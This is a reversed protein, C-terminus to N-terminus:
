RKAKPLTPPPGHVFDLVSFDPTGETRSRKDAISRFKLKNYHNDTSWAKRQQEKPQDIFNIARTTQKQPATRIARMTTPKSTTSTVVDSNEKARSSGAAAEHQAPPKTSVASLMLRQKPKERVPSKLAETEKEAAGSERVRATSSINAESTKPATDVGTTRLATDVSATKRATEVGTTKKVTNVVTSKPVTSVGTTKSATNISTTKPATSISTTKPATDISTAKTATNIVTTKPATDVGTTKSRKPQLISNDILSKAANRDTEQQANKMEQLEGVGSDSFIQEDSSSEEDSSSLQFPAKRAVPPQRSYLGSVLSSTPVLPRHSEVFLGKGRATKGRVAILPEDDSSDDDLIVMHHTQKRLRQRKKARKEHRREKAAEAREQAKEFAAINKENERLFAAEGLERKM